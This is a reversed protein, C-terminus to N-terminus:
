ATIPEAGAGGPDRRRDALVEGRRQAPVDAPDPLRHAARGQRLGAGEALQVRRRPQLHHGAPVGQADRHVPQLARPEGAPPLQHLVHDDPTIVAQNNFVNSVQPNLYIEIGNRAQVSFTLALDTSNVTGTRYADPATFAYRTFDPPMAYGPNTVYPRVPCGNVVRRVTVGVPYRQLVSLNM